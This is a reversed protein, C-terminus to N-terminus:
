SIFNLLFKISIYLKLYLSCFYEIFRTSRSQLTISSHTPPTRLARFQPSKFNVRKFQQSLALPSVALVFDLSIILFLKMSTTGSSTIDYLSMLEDSQRDDLGSGRSSVTFKENQKEKIEPEKLFLSSTHRDVGLGSVGYVGNSRNWRGTSRLFAVAFWWGLSSCM